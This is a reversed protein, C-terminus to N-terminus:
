TMARRAAREPGAGDAELEASTQALRERVHPPANGLIAQRTQRLAQRREPPQSEVAGLMLGLHIRREREPLKAVTALRRGLMERRQEDPLDGMGATMIKVTGRFEERLTIARLPVVMLFGLAFVWLGFWFNYYGDVRVSGVEGAFFLLFGYILLLFGGWMLLQKALEQRLTPPEPLRTKWWGRVPVLVVFAGLSGRGTPARAPVRWTARCGPSRSSGGSCTSSRTSWSCCRSTSSSRACGCAPGCAGARGTTSTSPAPGGCRCRSSGASPSWTLMAAVEATVAWWNWVPIAVEEASTMLEIGLAVYIEGRVLYVGGGFILDPRMGAGARYAGTMGPLSNMASLLFFIVLFGQFLGASLLRDSPLMLTLGGVILWLEAAMSALVLPTRYSFYGEVGGSPWLLTVVLVILLATPVALTWLDERIAVIAIGPVLAALDLALLLFLKRPMQM